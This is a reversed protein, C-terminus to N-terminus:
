KLTESIKQLIENMEYPKQVFGMVGEDLIRQAEGDMGYGSSLLAKIRPNIGKLAIFLERGNMRPMVMDLIVLDIGAHSQRYYEVAKVPDNYSVVNYGNLRLMDELMRGVVQEDDIVLVKAGGTRPLPAGDERGGSPLDEPLLPLYIKFSAGKGPSSFVKIAGKHNKVTGFVSALGLGTGKGKEKTTFFPEFLHKLVDETMGMGTDRVCIEVYKGQSLESDLSKDRIEVAKTAFVLEGGGPMMADRANIALNLLANQLQTMDGLVTSPNAELIQKIEIKRDISRRAMEVVDNIVSHINVPTSLFKGKRSFALLKQTLDSARRAAKVINGAYGALAPDELRTALIEAYGMIGALQNNFDHAVGGALQGIADMKERQHLKEELIKEGTIDWLVGRIRRRGDKDAILRGRACLYRVSSDPWIVRYESEYPVGKEVTNRLATKLKERDEPNVVRFFEDPVGTFKAHDIGLMHCTQEDFIRKDNDIDWIWVGMHAAQLALDLRTKNELIAEEAKRRETINRFYWVRGYYEGDRGFMPASYREFVRGDKLNLEDWSIESRHAFLYKVRQVFADPDTNKEQVFKLVPPDFRANILEEPIGWMEIFRKNYSAIMDNSDVILIGDTSLEQQTTLIANRLKLEDQNKKLENTAKEVQLKLIRSWALTVVLMAILLFLAASVYKLIQQSRGSDKEYASFWRDRIRRYEGTKSIASLGESFESLIDTKGHPVAYCYEMSKISDGRLRLNKWGNKQMWYLAPMNAVLACDGKGGSLLKLAEEQSVVPILQKELGHEVAWDHMIDGKQVLISKGKLGDPLSKLEPDEKRTVAVYHVNSHVQSFDFDRDRESSYLMGQLADIEGKRLEERIKNWDDLRIDVQLGLQKAIARTLDVNFGAPNGKEDLFEYPPFANDGGVVIRSRSRQMASLESFWKEHLNRFTGDAIVTSLGENLVALMEKDGKKVAFCFKQVFDRLPPGACVLNGINLQKVLQLFVIRQIVVADQRGESLERLAEESTATATIEADLGIRRVYEESNDGKLVAVRRGKLDNISYIGSTDGRVVIAGHMTLYPFTFDYINEREPTRGVLPLVQIRGEALDERLESWKGIKFSVDREMVKLSAQLLEISFGDAKGDKIICYPPYDYECGSLVPAPKVDREQSVLSAPLLCIISVSLFLISVCKYM